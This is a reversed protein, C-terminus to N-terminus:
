RARAKTATRDQRELSERDWKGAIAAAEYTSQCFEMLTEAPNESLRVEDYMLFFEGKDPHYFAKEPRV